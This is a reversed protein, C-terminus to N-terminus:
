VPQLVVLARLIPIRSDLQLSGLWSKLGLNKFDLVLGYKNILLNTWFNHIWRCIVVPSKKPRNLDVVRLTHSWTMVDLFYYFWDAYISNLWKHVNIFVSSKKDFCLHVHNHHCCLPIFVIFIQWIESMGNKSHLMLILTFFLPIPSNPNCEVYLLFLLSSYSFPLFNQKRDSTPSLITPIESANDCLNVCFNWPNCLPTPSPGMVANTIPKYCVHKIM